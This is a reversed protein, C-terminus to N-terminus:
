WSVHDCKRNWLLRANPSIYIAGEGKNCIIVNLKYWCGLKYQLDAVTSAQLNLILPCIENLLNGEFMPESINKFKLTGM